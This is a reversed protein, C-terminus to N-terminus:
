KERTREMAISKGKKLKKKEKEYLAEITNIAHM